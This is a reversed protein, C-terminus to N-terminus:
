EDDANRNATLLAGANLRVAGDPESQDPAIELDIANVGDLVVAQAVADAEAHVSERGRGEADSGVIAVDAVDGGVVRVIEDPNRQVLAREVVRASRNARDEAELFLMLFHPGAVRPSKFDGEVVHVTLYDVVGKDNQQAFEISAGRFSFMTASQPVMRGSGFGPVDIMLQDGEVKITAKAPGRPTMMQYVGAYKALTAPDLHVEASGTSQPQVFHQRDKENETCVYELLDTDADFVLETTVTWPRTFTKADDFTLQLDIHGFDRRRYRETVRLGETYPYSPRGVFSKDNFGITEVVLTDGDWRGISYGQWTPNPDKPLTRGDTFIQRFNNPVEYLVTTIQPTQVIRFPGTFPIM